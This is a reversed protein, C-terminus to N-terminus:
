YGRDVKAMNAYESNPYNSVIEQYLALASAEDGLARLAVAKKYMAEIHDPQLNIVGEFYALAAHYDGAAFSTDGLAVLNSLGRAQVNATINGLIGVVDVGSSEFNQFVNQDIAIYLQVVRNMDNDALAQQAGILRQYQLLQYARDGDITSISGTLSENSSAYEENSQKLNEIQNNADSLQKSLEILQTNHVNNNRASITPIYLFFTSAAGILLGIGVNVVMQWGTYEKFKSPIIVDEDTIAAKALLEKEKREKASLRIEDMMSQFYLAKPNRRDIQLVADIATQAKQKERAQMNLLAYLLQAKVFNPKAEIVRLLTLMALDESQNKAHGLAQNYKVLVQENMDLKGPKKRISYLYRRAENDEPRLNTSIVWQVLAEAVEGMEYHILGLLNRAATHNKNLKLAYQLNPIAETLFREKAKELGLNYYSNSVKICITENEMKENRMQPIICRSHIPISMTNKM